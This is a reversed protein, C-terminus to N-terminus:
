LPMKPQSELTLNRRKMRGIPKYLVRQVQRLLDFWFPLPDQWSFVATAKHGHWSRLLGPLTLKGRRLYYLASQIDHRWYIWKVGQYKQQRGPPLEWGLLDCYMTYLLEVGGAEAIASRGTPRGINPEIIYSKGTREDCKMEVYGLGRYDVNKFLRLSVDLVEDNRVEEGLCSTGTEPPWQRLKRAIFTAQPLGDRDFYCNCSYLNEDTGEVWEQVMLLESWQSARDYVTLFEAADQVKYVKLKTNKEWTPTKVPPKVICPFSLQQAAREADARSYLFFTGPIPLGVNKAYTYFKVKDMLMEVVDTPPLAFHYWQSLRERNRSLMLVSFDTCPFLVPKQEFSPGLRILLSIFEESKTNSAYIQQCLKTKSCFHDTDTAIAIVPVGRQALIRTTQLGTICDLGIVIAPPKLAQERLDM